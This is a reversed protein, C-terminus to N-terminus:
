ARAFELGTFSTFALTAADAPAAWLVGDLDPPLDAETLGARELHPGLVGCLVDDPGDTWQWVALPVGPFVEHMTVGIWVPAAAIPQGHELAYRRAARAFQRVIEAKPATRMFAHLEPMTERFFDRVSHPSLPGALPLGPGGETSQGPPKTSGRTLRRRPAGM